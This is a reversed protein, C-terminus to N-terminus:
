KTVLTVNTILQQRVQSSSLCSHVNGISKISVPTVTDTLNLIDYPIMGNAESFPLIGKAIQVLDQQTLLNDLPVFENSVPQNVMREFPSTVQYYLAIFIGQQQWRLRQTPKMVYWDWSDYHTSDQSNYYRSWIWDGQVYDAIEMGSATILPIQIVAASAGITM